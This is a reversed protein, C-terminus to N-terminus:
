TEFLSMQSKVSIFELNSDLLLGDKNKIENDVTLYSDNSYLSERMVLQYILDFENTISSQELATFCILQLNYKRAIEALADLLHPSSMKGFPNDSLFVSRTVDRVETSSSMRSYETLASFVIFYTIFKEGNSNKEEWLKLGNNVPNEYVKYVRIKYKSMNTLTNIIMRDSFAKNVNNLVQNDDFNEKASNDMIKMLENDVFGEIRNEAQTDLKDPMDIDMIKQRGKEDQLNARAHSFIRIVEEHLKCAYKYVQMIIQHKDNEIGYLLTNLIQIQDVLNKETELLEEYLYYCESFSDYGDFDMREIVSNVVTNGSNEYSKKIENYLNKMDRSKKSVDSRLNFLNEMESEIDIDKQVPVIDSDNELESPIIKEIKNIQGSLLREEKRFIDEDEKASKKKELCKDLREDYNGSIESVPLPKDTGYRKRLSKVANNYKDTYLKIESEIRKKENVAENFRKDNEKYEKELELFRDENYEIDYDKESLGSYFKRLSNENASIESSMQSCIREQEARQIGARSSLEEYEKELQEIPVDIFEGSVYASYDALIDTYKQTNYEADKQMNLEDYKKKDLSVVNGDIDEIERETNKLLEKKSDLESIDAMNNESLRIYENFLNIKNQKDKIIGKTEWIDNIIRICRDRMEELLKENDSRESELGNLLKDENEVAIRISEYEELTLDFNEVVDLHSRSKRLDNELVSISDRLEKIESELRKGYSEKTERSISERNFLSYFCINSDTFSTEISSKRIVPCIRDVSFGNGINLVKRFDNDSVIFCYPLMPNASILSNFYESPQNSLFDEGTQYDIGNEELLGAFEHAIHLQKKNLKDLLGSKYDRERKFRDCKSNLETIKEKILGSNRKKEFLYKEDIEYESLVCKLKEIQRNCNDLVSKVESLKQQKEEIDARIRKEDGKYKEINRDVTEKESELSEATSKASKLANNLNNLICEVSDDILYGAIDRQPLEGILEAYKAEKKQFDEIRNRLTIIINNLKDRETELKKKDTDCSKLQLEIKEINRKHEYTKRSYNEAMECYKKYLTFGVNRLRVGKEDNELTEIVSRAVNIRNRCYKILSYYKSAGMCDLNYKSKALIKESIDIKEEVDTLKRALENIKNDSDIVDESIEEMGIHREEKACEEQITIAQETKEVARQQELKKYRLVGAFSREKEEKKVYIHCYESFNQNFRKTDTLLCEFLEKERLNDSREIMPKVLSAICEILKKRNDPAVDSITKLIWDDFLQDSTKCSEFFEVLGGEHQNIKQLLKWENKYIRHQSLNQEYESLKNRTFYNFDRKTRSSKKVEEFMENYSYLTYSKGNIKRVPIHEIDLENGESYTHTYTFYRYSSTNREGKESSEDKNLAMCIGTLYYQKNNTNDLLWEIMIHIPTSNNKSLYKSIHRENLSTGPLIPQFMLQVMVSKGGGNSLNMLADSGDYMNFICDKINRHDYSINVFRVRNIVPM